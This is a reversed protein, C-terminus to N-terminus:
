CGGFLVRGALLGFAAAGAIAVSLRVAMTEIQEPTM